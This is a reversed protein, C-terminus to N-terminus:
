VVVEEPTVKFTFLRQTVYSVAAIFICIFTYAVTPNLSPLSYAFLKVLLYALVIFSVTTLAYRFVQIRGHLNSEPYVIYRSMIFGAPLSIANAIIWAGVEPAITLGLIYTASRHLIFNIAIYEVAISLLANGGGCALYRFVQEPIYRAFPKYFFDIVGVIINRASTFL